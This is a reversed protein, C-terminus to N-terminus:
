SRRAKQRQAQKYDEPDLGYQEYVLAFAQQCFETFKPAEMESISEPYTLVGGGILATYNKIYGLQTLLAASMADKDPYCGTADIVFKLFGFYLRLMPNSKEQSITCEIQSGIRYASLMEEDVATAPRLGGTVVNMVFVVKDKSRRAM